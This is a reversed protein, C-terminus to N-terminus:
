QTWSEHDEKMTETAFKDGIYGWCSEEDGLQNGDADYVVTTVGYINGNCWDTYTQLTNRAAQRLDVDPGWDDDALMYGAIGTVDWQRDVASSEGVLAYRVLGHEYKEIYFCRGNEIGTRYENEFEHREEGEHWATDDDHDFDDGCTQCTNFKSSMRDADRQSDLLQYEWGHFLEHPEFCCFGDEDYSLYTIITRGDPLDTLLYEDAHGTNIPLVFQREGETLVSTTSTHSSTTISM